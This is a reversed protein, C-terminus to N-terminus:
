DTFNQTFMKGYIGGDIVGIGIRRFDPDLINKRHGESDMLGQHATGVDPAYALNEGAYTFAVGGARLRDGADTGEPSVHSFYRREFMDRSYTRAVATITTDLVLKEVGAKERERNVLELMRAESAEDVRLESEKPEIDLTIREKSKPTVTLFKQLSQVAGFREAYGVLVRGIRSQGIDKKVTGRLPLALVILLFFTILVLGNILSVLAGLWKNIKSSLYKKPLKQVFWSGIESLMAEAIIAVVVYGLVTTWMTPIGFKEGLFNGVPAHLRLSFWLSGLFSFLNLGLFVMGTEWGSVLYYGLVALLTWDIWNFNM